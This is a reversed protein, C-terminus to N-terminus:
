GDIVAGQCFAFQAARAERLHGTGEPPLPATVADDAEARDCAINEAKQLMGRLGAALQTKGSKVRSEGRLAIPPLRDTGSHKGRRSLVLSTREGNRSLNVKVGAARRCLHRGLSCFRFSAGIAKM